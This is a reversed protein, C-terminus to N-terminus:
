YPNKISLQYLKIKLLQQQETERNHGGRQLGLSQLVRPDTVWRSVCTSSIHWHPVGRLTGSCSVPVPLSDCTHVSAWEWGPAWCGAAFPAWPGSSDSLFAPESPYYSWPKPVPCWLAINLAPHQPVTTQQESGIWGMLSPLIATTTWDSLRTWSKTVGHVAARWAERDKVIGWLKSLNMDM